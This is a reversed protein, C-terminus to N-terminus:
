RRREGLLIVDRLGEAGKAAMWKEEFRPDSIIQAIAALSKLHFPREDPTGVLVFVAHIRDPSDPFEIGPRSRALLIDFKKKGQIIIHPIALHPTLVTTSENERKLLLEYIENTSTDLRRALRTAAMQFFEDMSVSRDIDIVEAAEILHDFRDKLIEDRERIIEKLEAELSRTTLEKATIREILYILASERSTRVRGYLLYVLGGGGILLGTTVLAAGGIEFVLLGFGVIAVIQVIPYLPSRFTPQYNQLKSERLVIVSLCSFAYTLILITSATKVLLDLKLVLTFIMFLGTALIAVYPTRSRKGVRSFVNPLFGDRALALPYRAAAMIGANATSIFALMAAVALVISGPTGMFARAGDSIPTLSNDLTTGDLVGTTVSIVLLYLVIVTILSLAMGLPITKAPKSVEEAVSAIKLLGGYSIFVFGATRLIPDLGLPAFPELNSLQVQPLGRVVYFALITLLGLVIAVQARSAEKIGALNLGVFLVTMGIALLRMDFNFVLMGFAAMGVLAFASKVSLSLWTILGNVTGMGSGLARTVYFYTGGAKPMASVLEAQSLMGAAALLGALLYSLIVAPGAKAHAIGPLIFLGSSIMAGTSICFVDLLNLKRKLKPQKM